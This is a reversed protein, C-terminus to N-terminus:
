SVAKRQAHKLVFGSWVALSLTRHGALFFLFPFCFKVLLLGPRAEENKKLANM